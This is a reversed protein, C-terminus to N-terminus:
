YFPLTVYDQLPLPLNSHWSNDMELDVGIVQFPGDFEILIHKAPPDNLLIGFAIDKAYV